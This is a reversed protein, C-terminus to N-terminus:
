ARNYGEYFEIGFVKGDEDTNEFKFRNTALTKIIDRYLQEKRALPTYSYDADLVLANATIPM